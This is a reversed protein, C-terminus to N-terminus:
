RLWRGIIQAIEFGMQLSCYIDAFLNGSNINAIGIDNKNNNQINKVQPENLDCQEDINGDNSINDSVGNLNVSFSSQDTKADHDDINDNDYNNVGNEVSEIAVREVNEGNDNEVNINDADANLIVENGHVNNNININTDNGNGRPIINIGPRFRDDPKIDGIIVGRSNDNSEKSDDDNTIDSDWDNELVGVRIGNQYIVGDRLVYDASEDAVPEYPNGDALLDDLLRLNDDADEMNDALVNNNNENNLNDDVMDQENNINILDPNVRERNLDGDNQEVRQAIDQNEYVNYSDVDYSWTRYSPMFNYVIYTSTSPTGRSNDQYVSNNEGFVMALCSGSM